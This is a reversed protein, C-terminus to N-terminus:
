RGRLEKSVAARELLDFAGQVLLALIAAPVAGQLITANDNISLGRQIPQGLGGAGILAALTATGVNIVASTKIGALITPLAMPLYVKTLRAAPPLGLAEASERLGPPIGRLGTATNRVIPLLSYLFLAFVATRAGTGFFSIPVLLGLLALSPITQVVGTASLILGSTWDPRAARIGLPLGVLVAALLSIGVYGLHQATLHLTQVVLSTREVKVNKQGRSKFYLTAAEAYDKSRNAEANMSIMLREDITGGLDDLVKVARAPLDLRYLYTARYLPFFGRDDELVTLDYKKIEADTTYCDTLDITGAALAAYALSHEIGDPQLTLGYKAALPVWGDKRVLYEHSISAKLDGHSALDSITAIGLRAADKRRMVLGYGDNFGLDKSMGIGQARLAERMADVSLGSKKLIEESITGTYEPYASIDGGKLAAWVIGTAGIGEKHEVPFGADKLARKAIEGLVYSETFKKSGVTLSQAKLSAVMLIALVIWGGRAVLWRM